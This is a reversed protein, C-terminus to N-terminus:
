KQEDEQKWRRRVFPVGNIFCYKSQYFPLDMTNMPPIENLLDHSHIFDFIPKYEIHLQSNDNSRDNLTFVFTRSDLHALYQTIPQNPLIYCVVYSVGPYKREMAAQFQKYLGLESSLYDGVVTRLFICNGRKVKEDFRAIKRRFSAIVNPDHLNHNPHWFSVYEGIFSIWDLYIHEGKLEEPFFHSFDNEICHIVGEMSCKVDDFPLSPENFLGSDKLAIKTGCWGGISIYNM